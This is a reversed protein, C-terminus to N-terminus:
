GPSLSTPHLLLYPSCAALLRTVRVHNTLQDKALGTWKTLLLSEASLVNSQRRKVADLIDYVYPPYLGALTKEVRPPPPPALFTVRSEPHPDRVALYLRDFVMAVRASLKTRASETFIYSPYGDDALRRILRQAAATSNTQAALRSGYCAALRHQLLRRHQHVVADTACMFPRAAHQFDHALRHSLRPM